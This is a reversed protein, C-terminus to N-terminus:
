YRTVGLVSVINGFKAYYARGPVLTSSGIHTGTTYNTGGWVSYVPGGSDGGQSTYMVEVVDDINGYPGSVQANTSSVIGSLLGSAQGCLNVAGGVGVNRLLTSLTIGNCNLTNTPQYFINFEVIAADIIGYPVSEVCSGIITSGYSVNEYKVFSHGTIIACNKVGYKVRFGMTSGAGLSNTVRAGPNVSTSQQPIIKDGKVFRFMKSNSVKNQFEKIRNENFEDLRVEILNENDRLAYGLINHNKNERQFVLIRDIQKLLDAFSYNCKELVIDKTGCRKVFEERHDEPNGLVLIALKNDKNIYAGGYYGPYNSPEASPMPASKFSNLLNNYEELGYSQILESDFTARTKSTHESSIDQVESLDSTDCAALIGFFLVFFYFSLNKV